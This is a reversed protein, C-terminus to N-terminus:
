PELMLVIVSVFYVAIAAFCVGNWFAARCAERARELARLEHHTLMVRRM